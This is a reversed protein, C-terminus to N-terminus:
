RSCQQHCEQKVGFTLQVQVRFILLNLLTLTVAPGEPFLGRLHSSILNTLPSEKHYHKWTCRQQQQQLVSHYQNEYLLM